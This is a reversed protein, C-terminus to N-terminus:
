AFQRAMLGTKRPRRRIINCSNVLQACPIKDSLITTIRDSTYVELTAEVVTEFLMLGHPAVSREFFWHPINTIKIIQIRDTPNHYCCLIKKATKQVNELVYMKMAFNLLRM